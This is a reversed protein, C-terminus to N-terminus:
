FDEKINLIASLRLNKYQVSTGQPSFYDDVIVLGMLWATLGVSKHSNALLSIKETFGQIVGAHKFLEFLIGILFVILCIWIFDANGLSNQFLNNLNVFPNDSHGGSGFSLMVVGIVCGTFLSFVASRTKFAILLAIILPFLSWPGLTLTNQM